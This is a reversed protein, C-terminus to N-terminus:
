LPGGQEPRDAEQHRRGEQREKRDPIRGGRTPSHIQCIYLDAPEVRHYVNSSAYGSRPGPADPLVKAFHAWFARRFQGLPSLSGSRTIAGVKRDWENPREIVEFVPALPSDGIRVVSVRVAFFAFPDETHNNLWRIASLHSEDFGLLLGLGCSSPKGFRGSIGAGPGPASSQRAGVSERYACRLWRQPIRAVIDAYYPGVTVETGELELDDIGLETSLCDLNEALWLRLITRKTRGRRGLM